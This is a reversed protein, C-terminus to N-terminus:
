LIQSEVGDLIDLSSTDTEQGLPYWKETFKNSLLWKHIISIQSDIPLQILVCLM